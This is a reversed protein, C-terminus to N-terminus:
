AMGEFKGDRDAMIYGMCFQDRGALAEAVFINAMMRPDLPDIIASDMGRAIAMAVFVQNVLKRKPLGFSINSLGCTKHV